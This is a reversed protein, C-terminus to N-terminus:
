VKDTNLMESDVAMNKFSLKMFIASHNSLNEGSHVVGAEVVSRYLNQSLCFHDIISSSIVGNALRLHTYDVPNIKHLPDNDSNEWLTILSLNELFNSIANTFSNERAFHANLDGALIINQCESTM